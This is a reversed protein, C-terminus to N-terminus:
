ETKLEEIRGRARDFLALTQPTGMSSGVYVSGDDEIGVVAVETLAHAGDLVDPVPVSFEQSSVERPSEDIPHRPYQIREDGPPWGLREHTEKALAYAVEHAVEQSSFTGREVCSGANASGEYRTVVYRTVPRVKYEILEPEDTM